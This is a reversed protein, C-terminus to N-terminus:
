IKPSIVQMQERIFNDKGINSWQDTDFVLVLAQANEAVFKGCYPYVNTIITPQHTVCLATEHGDMVDFLGATEISDRSREHLCEHVTRPIEKAFVESLIDADQKARLMPSELIIDPVLGLQVMQEAVSRTERRGKDTLELDDNTKEFGFNSEKHGHRKFIFRLM